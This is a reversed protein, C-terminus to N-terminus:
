PQAERMTLTGDFDFLVTQVRHSSATSKLRKPIPEVQCRRPLLMVNIRSAVVLRPHKVLCCDLTPTKLFIMNITKQLKGHTKRNWLQQFSEEKLLWPFFILLHNCTIAWALSLRCGFGYVQFDLQAAKGMAALRVDLLNGFTWSLDPCIVLLIIGRIQMLPIGPFIGFGLGMM